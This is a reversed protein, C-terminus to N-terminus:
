LDSRGERYALRALEAGERAAPLAQAELAQYRLRATRAASWASQAAAATRRRALELRLAQRGREGEAAAPGRGAAWPVTLAGGTWKDAGPLTPDDIDAGGELALGPWRLRKALGIRAEATELGATELRVTSSDAQARALVTALPEEEAPSPPDGEAVLD